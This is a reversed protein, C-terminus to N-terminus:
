DGLRRRHAAYFEDIPVFGPENRFQEVTQRRLEAENSKVDWPKAQPQRVGFPSDCFVELGNGEPDKFYVSWANGHNIFHVNTARGDARVREAVAQVEGLSEVRFAMHDLNTSADEGRVPVFAIQHHDTGVQSLFALELGPKNPDLPGRDSVQFGLVDRYFAIVAELDRVYLVAHSWRLKM